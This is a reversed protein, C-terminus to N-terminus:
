EGKEVQGTMEERKQIQLAMEERMPHLQDFIKKDM